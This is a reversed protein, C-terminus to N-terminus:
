KENKKNLYFKLGEYILVSLLAKTASEFLESKSETVNKNKYIFHFFRARILSHAIISIIMVGAIFWLYAIIGGDAHIEYFAQAAIFIFSGAIFIALSWILFIYILAPFFQKLFKM